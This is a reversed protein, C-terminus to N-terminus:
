SQVRSRGLRWWRVRKARGRWVMGRVPKPPRLGGEGVRAHVGPSVFGGAIAPPRPLPSPEWGCHVRCAFRLQVQRTNLGTRDDRGRVITFPATEHKHTRARALWASESARAGNATSARRRCNILFAVGDFVALLWCRMWIGCPTGRMGITSKVQSLSMGSRSFCM